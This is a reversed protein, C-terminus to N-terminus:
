ELNGEAAFLGLGFFRGGGICIPGSVMVPRGRADRWKIGVHFRPFRRLHDPVGYRDALDVGSWFGGKRWEIEAHDALVKSFGAQMIAKRLLGDTRESLRALLQKQEAATTGKKLRRRYHAPDDYGPLVVPTVTSWSSASQSYRRVVRETTPILSLLAVPQKKDEDILEQGSLTRRAWAIESECDEAFSTLIVRRVSGIVRGRGDGRAEVSPLPMYAFRRPGVAVNGGGKKSEGHGLVFANIRPEDWGAHVAAIKATRRMMGAVTLARSVTDFACFGSANLKLLSFAAVQRPQPDTARRYECTEYAALPPPPIFGDPGLRGLFREHRRVLDDLTGPVPVRLGGDSGDGPLWREGPLAKVQEDSLIEGHGVTLDVGWGLSVVSRAVDSLGEVYGRVNDTLPDDLPWLYHVSDDELMKTPRVTKMTRHTAPNADGSNSYNGRCWARAVIDMANNPVSLRYGSTAVIAPAILIPREHRELWKFAPALVDVCRRAAAAAVLAQFVRLPSPPWEPAGSDRRGHFAQELFRISLVFHSYM